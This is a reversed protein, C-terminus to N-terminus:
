RTLGNMRCSFGLPFVDMTISIGSGCKPLNADDDAYQSRTQQGTEAAPQLGLQLPPLSRACGTTGLGLVATFFYRVLRSQNLM